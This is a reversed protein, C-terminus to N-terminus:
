FKLFADFDFLKGSTSIRKFRPSTLMKREEYIRVAVTLAKDEDPEMVKFRYSDVLDLPWHLTYTSLFEELNYPNFEEVEIEHELYAREIRPKYHLEWDKVAIELTTGLEKSYHLHEERSKKFLLELYNPNYHGM